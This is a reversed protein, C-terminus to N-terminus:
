PKAGTVHDLWAVVDDLSDLQRTLAWRSVVYTPRGRDDASEVLTIGALACKATLTALHKAAAHQTSTIAQTSNQKQNFKELLGAAHPTGCAEDNIPTCQWAANAQQFHQM